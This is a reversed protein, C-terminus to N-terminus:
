HTTKRKKNTTLPTAFSMPKIRARHFKSYAKTFEAGTFLIQASYYVWILIVIFSGAAGYVTALNSNGIYAAILHKGLSFLLASIFAGLWVERWHIDVDPLIKFILAFLSTVGVLSVIFYIISALIYGATFIHNLYDSFTTLLVNLILSVLLLFGIAVIMAFSLIRYKIIRWLFHGSKTKVNWITNMGDQLENLLGLAAFILIFIGIITSILSSNPKNASHLLMRLEDTSELGIISQIELLIHNEAIDHGFAIGAIAISILIIPALAFITYYALAAAIRSVKDKHWYSITNLLITSLENMKM